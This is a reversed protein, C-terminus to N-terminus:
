AGLGREISSRATALADDLKEPERGGAQAV